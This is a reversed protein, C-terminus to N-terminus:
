KVLVYVEIIRTDDVFETKANSSSQLSSAFNRLRNWVM